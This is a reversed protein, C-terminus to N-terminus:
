KKEAVIYARPEGLTFKKRGPISYVEKMAFGTEELMLEIEAISYIYDIAKKTETKGDTTLILTDTEIRSPQILYKSENIFKLDGINSWGKERFDNFAIEALMWTNILFHGGPKLHSGIMKLLKITDSRDFFCLSNGMCLALDFIEEAEYKIVDAKIPTVPLNGKAATEKIENIYENLNDVATVNIGKKALSIAHRGYGCMLDLVKNGPQLNFYQLMFDTEKVTLEAPILNRWIDKYYGDFYSDNINSM